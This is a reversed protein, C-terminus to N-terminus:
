NVTLDEDACASQFSTLNYGYNLMQDYAVLCQLHWRGHRKKNRPLSGLQGYVSAAGKGHLDYTLPHELEHLQHAAELLSSAMRSAEEAQMVAQAALLAHEAAIQM